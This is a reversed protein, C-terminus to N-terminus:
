RSRILERIHPAGYPQIASLTHGSGSKNVTGSSIATPRASTSEPPRLLEAVLVLDISSHTMGDGSDGGTLQGSMGRNLVQCDFQRGRKKWTRQSSSQRWRNPFMCTDVSMVNPPM